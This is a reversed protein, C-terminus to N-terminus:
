FRFRKAQLYFSLVGFRETDNNLNSQSSSRVALLSKLPHRPLASCRCLLSRINLAYRTHTLTLTHQSYAHIPTLLHVAECVCCMSEQAAWCKARELRQRESEWVRHPSISSIITPAVCSVWESTWNSVWLLLLLFLFFSGCIQDLFESHPDKIATVAPSLPLRKYRKNRIEWKEVFRM